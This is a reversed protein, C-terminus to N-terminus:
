SYKTLTNTGEAIFKVRIFIYLTFVNLLRRLFHRSKFLTELLVHKSLVCVRSSWELRSVNKIYSVYCKFINMSWLWIKYVFHLILCLQKNLLCWISNQLYVEIYSCLVLYYKFVNQWYKFVYISSFLNKFIRIIESILSCNQKFINIYFINNQKYNISLQLYIM